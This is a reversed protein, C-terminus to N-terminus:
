CCVRGSGGRRRGRTAEVRALGARPDPAVDDAAGGLRRRLQQRPEQHESEPVELAILERIPPRWPPRARGGSTGQLGM